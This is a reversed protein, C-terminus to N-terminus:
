QFLSNVAPCPCGVQYYDWPFLNMYSEAAMALVGADQWQHGLEALGAAYAEEAALARELSLESGNTYRKHYLCDTLAVERLALRQM